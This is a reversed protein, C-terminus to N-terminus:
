AVTFVFLSFVPHWFKSVPAFKARFEEEKLLMKHYFSSLTQIHFARVHNM